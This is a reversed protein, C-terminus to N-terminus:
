PVPQGKAGLCYLSNATRIFLRKDGIAPVSNVPADLASVGLKEFKPGAKVVILDGQQSACFIKGDGAVPSSFFKASGKTGELREEYIVKGTKQEVCRLIGGDGLLYMHEGIVLPSPVYPLGKPIEFEVAKPKGSRLDLAAVEKVGGGTGFTCFYFEDSLVGSGLSRQTYGPNHQWNLKGTLLDIGMVGSGTDACIIEKKGSKLTHVVPTSFTNLCNPIDLKWVQKGTKADLGVICSKWERQEPSTTLDKGNKELDFESRIIMIGDEVLASVGTGHEHIYGAVKDNRWIVKGSHDLALAQIDPGSSWNVYVGSADVFPSSSAFTNYTKHINHPVFEEEHRWVEKGDAASLAIVARKTAATETTVFVKDGFLVPSSWGKGLPAKWLTTSDDVVSPLGTTDALGTGNPGRFRSWDTKAAASISLLALLAFTRKM